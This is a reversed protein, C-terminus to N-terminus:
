HKVTKGYWSKILEDSIRMSANTRTEHNWTQDWPGGGIHSQAVLAGPKMAIYKKVLDKLFVEEDADFAYLAKVKQGTDPDLYRARGTIESNGYEKFERYLERFVPGHTWAEIKASLLPRSFAVLFDAHLFYVIKNIHLNSVARREVEAVDLVFNAIARVDYSM